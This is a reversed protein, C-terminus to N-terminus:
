STHTHHTCIMNASRKPKQITMKFIITIFYSQHNTHHNCIHNAIFEITIFIILSSYSQSSYPLALIRLVSQDAHSQDSGRQSARTVEEMPSLIMCFTNAHNAPIYKNSIFFTNTQIALYIQKFQQIYKNSYCSANPRNSQNNCFYKKGHLVDKMEQISSVNDLCIM